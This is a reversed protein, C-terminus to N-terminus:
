GRSVAASGVCLWSDDLFHRREWEFVEPSAYAVGPLTRALDLPRTVPELSSPDIPARTM